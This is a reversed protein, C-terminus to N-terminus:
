LLSKLTTKEVLKPPESFGHFISIQLDTMCVVFSLCCVFGFGTATVKIFSYRSHNECIIIHTGEKVFVDTTSKVLPLHQQAAAPAPVIAESM